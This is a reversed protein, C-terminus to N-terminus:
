GNSLRTNWKKLLKERVTDYDTGYEYAETQCECSLSMRREGYHLVLFDFLEKTEIVFRTNKCFPCPSTEIVEYGPKNFENM